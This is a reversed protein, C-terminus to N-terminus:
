KKGNIAEEGESSPDLIEYDDDTLFGDDTSDEDDLELSEVEDLLEQDAAAITSPSVVNEAFTSEHVSSVPSKTELTPFIMQDHTEQKPEEKVEKAIDEIHEVKIQNDVAPKMEVVDIDCWLKNGFPIGDATKLRWYSIAKGSRQPTKITIFFFAEEGPQVIRGCVNSKTAKAIDGFGAPHNCDVNLMNDGGIFGVSCGAPWPAPGPNRLVWVQQVQLSAALKSGDQITDRVFHAQLETAPIPKPKEEVQDVKPPESPKVEAVTQVQTAANASPAAPVTETSKSSTQPVKDGMTSMVEGNEKEGLTTVSVNRVPTRFKILPHTRNHRNTPLAECSACFDTDHCVACKYRDGTIWGSNRKCLPGDCNIGQHVQARGGPNPVAEYIPAFRHGPHAIRSDKVCNSCYDWDPCNLCKHRVGYIYKFRTLIRYMDWFLSTSAKDCGDCLAFHRMNRGPACLLKAMSDLAAEESVPAFAHSPHHGHKLSVHCPICLDYDECVLCTVFNSEEFALMSNISSLDKFRPEVKGNVCCNCTRTLEVTEAIHEEKLDSTFAGPIGTHAEIKVVKKPLTETTSAIVRGNSITRKILFHDEVDCHIGDGVCTTCLDFNDDECIGCHWHADEIEEKCSNCCVAFCTTPVYFSQDVARLKTSPRSLNALDELFREKDTYPRPVVAEDKGISATASIESEMIPTAYPTATVDDPNKQSRAQSTRIIEAYAQHIRDEATEAQPKACLAPITPPAASNSPVLTPTLSINSAQAANTSMPPVYRHSTLCGFSTSSQPGPPTPAAAEYITAKIRLKLKAKAARYLQKYISPNASDLMIYTGASDSFREFAVTQTASLRLLSRLKDRYMDAVYGPSIHNYKSRIAVLSSNYM